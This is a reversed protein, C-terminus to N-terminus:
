RRYVSTRRIWRTVLLRARTVPVRILLLICYITCTQTQTSTRGLTPLITQAGKGNRVSNITAVLSREAIRAKEAIEEVTKELMSANVLSERNDIAVMLILEALIPMFALCKDHFGVLNRSNTDQMAQLKQLRDINVKIINCLQMLQFEDRLSVVM